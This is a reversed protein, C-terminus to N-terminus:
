KEANSAKNLLAAVMRSAANLAVGTEIKKSLIVVFKHDGASTESVDNTGWLSM